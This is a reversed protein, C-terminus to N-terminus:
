FKNQGTLERAYKSFKYICKIEKLGILYLAKHILKPWTMCVVCVFVCVHLVFVKYKENQLKLWSYPVDTYFRDTVLSISNLNISGPPNRFM